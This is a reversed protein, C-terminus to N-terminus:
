GRELDFCQWSFGYIGLKSKGAPLSLDHGMRMFSPRGQMQKASAAMCTQSSVENCSSYSM